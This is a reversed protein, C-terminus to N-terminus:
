PLMVSIANNEPSYRITVKRDKWYRGIEDAEEPTSAPLELFGAFYKNEVRYSYSLECIWLSDEGKPAPQPTALEVTGTTAPRGQSFQEYPSTNQQILEHVRERANEIAKHIRDRWEHNETMAIVGV